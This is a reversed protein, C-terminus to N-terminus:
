VGAEGQLVNVMAIPAASTPVTTDGTAKRVISVVEMLCVVNDVVDLPVNINACQAGFDTNM